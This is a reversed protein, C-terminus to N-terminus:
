MFSSKCKKAKRLAETAIVKYKTVNNDELIKKYTLLTYIAKQISEEVIINDTKHLDRGMVTLEKVKFLVKHKLSKDIEDIELKIKLTGIDILAFKASTM